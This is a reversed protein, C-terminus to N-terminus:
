RDQAPATVWRVSRVAATVRFAEYLEQEEVEPVAAVFEPINFSALPEEQLPLRVAPSARGQDDICTFYLRAYIGDDRKSAFVLWRSNSSWSHWSDAAFEANCELRRPPASLDAPMLYIDSSSKILIGGDSQCFSMWRGDPSFRPYYNSKGNQAAGPVAQPEGLVGNAFSMAYLDYRTEAPHSGVEASCYVLRRGDASFRPLLELRDAAAAQPVLAVTEEVSDYIALDSTPQGAHQTEFVVPSLTVLQQNASFALFRGDPSWAMFTSMQIDFPLRVKTGQGGAIDYVGLYVPLEQGPAMYRVQVAVKGGATEKTSFTHCNYCYHGRALLFSHVQFSGIERTFTDPTKRTNFPPTVLRYVVAEDAPWCSM